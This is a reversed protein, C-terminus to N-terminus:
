VIIIRFCVSVVKRYENWWMMVVVCLDRYNDLFVGSKIIRVGWFRFEWWRGGGCGDWIVWFWWLVKSGGERYCRM